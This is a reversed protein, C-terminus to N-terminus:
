RKTPLRLFAGHQRVGFVIQEAADLTVRRHTLQHAAVPDGRAEGLFDGLAVPRRHAHPKEALVQDGKAIGFPAHADEVLM